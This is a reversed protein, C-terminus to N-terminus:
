GADLAALPVTMELCTGQGPASRRTCTGGLQALRSQLNLLGDAELKGVTAADDFGRGDDELTLRFGSSGMTLAFRIENADAHKAVNHLIEKTALYLHHRVTPDMSAAPLSEPVDIRCRLGAAHSYNQVFAGLFLAFSELTDNQPNVAWVIEDLARTVEKATDFIQQVHQGAKEPRKTLNSRALQSLLAVQTLSAGVDDHLDRAIRAREGDVAQQRELQQIRRASRLQERRRVIFAVAGLVLLVVGARFWGTQWVHPRFHLKVAAPQASWLGNGTSASVEFRYDGPAVNRYIATRAVGPDGWESELGSLRNRFRLRDPAAFHLGTYRFEVRMAGPPVEVTGDKMEMSRGDVIVEEVFVPPVSQDATFDEPKLLAIGDTTGFALRGDSTQVPPVITFEECSLGDFHDIVRPYLRGLTGSQIRRVEEPSLVALGRHTGLWLRGAPDFHIQSITDDPLGDRSTVTIFRDGRKLALGGGAMGVWVDDSPTVHIVRIVSSLLGHEKGYRTWSGDRGAFLGSGRTGVWLTGDRQRALGKVPTDRSFEVRQAKGDKVQFLQGLGTGFWLGEEGECLQWVDTWGGVDTVPEGTDGRMRILGRGSGVWVGGDRAPIMDNVYVSPGLQPEIEIAQLQGGRLRYLGRGQTGILFEGPATEVLGGILNAGPREQPDILMMQTRARTLVFLGRTASGLWLQGDPTALIVEQLGAFPEAKAEPWVVSEGRFGRVGWRLWTVWMTGDVGLTMSAVRKDRGETFQVPVWQDNERRWVSGSMDGMWLRGEADECFATPEKPGPPKAHHWQGEKWLWLTPGSFSLWLTGDRTRYMTRLWSTGVDPAGPVPEFRGGTGLRAWFSREGVWVRGAGDEALVSITDSPLGDAQTYTRVVKNHQVVSVGGGLTGVWLSGDKSELLSLVTVAGLGEHLGYIKFEFGDFRTLGADTGLWLFGDRTRVMVRIRDQPLGERTTWNRWLMTVKEPAPAEDAARAVLSAATLLALIVALRLVM